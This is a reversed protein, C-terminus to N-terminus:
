ISKVCDLGLTQQGRECAWVSSATIVGHAVRLNCIIQLHSGADLVNMELDLQAEPAGLWAADPIMTELYIRAEALCFSSSAALSSWGHPQELAKGGVQLHHDQDLM